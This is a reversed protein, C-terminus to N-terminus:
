TCLQTVSYPAYIYIHKNGVSLWMWLKRWQQNLVQLDIVNLFVHTSLAWVSSEVPSSDSDSRISDTVSIQSICLFRSGHLRWWIFVNEANSARQAPFEGTVPCLGTLRLKSTEKSRRRFVRKLLCDHPQHNSIGDHENHRWRLSTWSPYWHVVESM